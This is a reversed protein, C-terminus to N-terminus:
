GFTRIIDWILTDLCCSELGVTQLERDGCLDNERQRRRLEPLFHLTALSLLKQGIVETFVDSDNSLRSHLKDSMPTFVTRLLPLKTLFKQHNKKFNVPKGPDPSLIHERFQRIRRQNDREEIAMKINHLGDTGEERKQHLVYENFLQIAMEILQHFTSKYPALPERQFRIFITMIM